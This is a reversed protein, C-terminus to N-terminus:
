GTGEFGVLSLSSRAQSRRPRRSRVEPFGARARASACLVASQAGNRSMGAAVWATAMVMSVAVSVVRIALGRLPVVPQWAISCRLHGHSPSPHYPAVRVATSVVRVATPFVRVATSIVRVQKISLLQREVEKEARIGAVHLELVQM